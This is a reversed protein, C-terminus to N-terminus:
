THMIGTCNADSDKSKEAQSLLREYLAQYKEAMIGADFQKLFRERGARGMALRRTDDGLLALLADALRDADAPPVLVGTVDDDVIEPIGGVGTAVVPKGCAMAEAIVLGFPEWLSPLVFIDFSNMLRRIDAREGLLEVSDDLDLARIQQQLNRREKGEGVIKLVADPYRDRVKKFASVLYYFGKRKTLFAVAGIVPCRTASPSTTAGQSEADPYFMGGDIGNHIVALKDSPVKARKMLDMETASISVVKQTHRLTRRYLLRVALGVLPGREDWEGLYHQTSLNVPVGARRGAIRGVIDPRIRHTHLIQIRRRALEEALVGIVSFDAFHRMGLQVPTAGIDRLHQVPHDDKSLIGVFIQYRTHDAYKILANLMRCTGDNIYRPVLHMLRIM